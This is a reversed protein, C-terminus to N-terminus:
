DKLNLHDFKHGRRRFLRHWFRPHDIVVETLIAFPIIVLIAVGIQELTLLQGTTVKLVVANEVLDVLIGAIIFELIRVKVNFHM